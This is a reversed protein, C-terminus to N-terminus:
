GHARHPAVPGYVSPKVDRPLRLAPCDPEHQILSCGTRLRSREGGETFLVEPPYTEFPEGGYDVVATGHHELCTWDIELRWGVEEAGVAPEIWLQEPDAASITLPFDVGEPRLKPQGADLDVSFKRPELPGLIHAQYCARRPQCRSVVVSRARHLIVARATRAQLTVVYVSGSPAMPRPPDADVILDAHWARPHIEVGVVIPNRMNGADDGVAAHVHVGGAISGAQIVNGLTGGTVSNSTSGPGGQQNLSPARRREEGSLTVPIGHLKELLQRGVEVARVLDDPLDLAAHGAHYVSKRLSRLEPVLGEATPRDVAPFVHPWKVASPTLVSALSGIGHASLSGLIETTYSDLFDVLESLEIPSLTTKPPHDSM